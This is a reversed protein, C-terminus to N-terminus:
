RHGCSRDRTGHRSRDSEGRIGRGRATRAGPPSDAPSHAAPYSRPTVAQRRDCTVRRRQRTVRQRYRHGNSQQTASSPNRLTLKVGTKDPMPIISLLDSGSFHSAAALRRQDIGTCECGIIREAGISRPTRITRYCRITARTRAMREITPIRCTPPIRTLEPAFDHIRQPPRRARWLVPSSHPGQSRPRSRSGRSSGDRHRRRRNRCDRSRSRIPAPPAACNRRAAGAACVPRCNACPCASRFPPLSDSRAM